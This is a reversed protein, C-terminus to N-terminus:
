KNIGTTATTMLVSAMSGFDTDRPVNKVKDVEQRGIRAPM